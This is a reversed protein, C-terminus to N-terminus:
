DGACAAHACSHSRFSREGCRELRHMPLACLAAVWLCGFLSLLCLCIYFQLGVLQRRTNTWQHLQRVLSADSAANTHLVGVGVSFSPRREAAEESALEEWDLVFTLFVLFILLLGVLILRIKM